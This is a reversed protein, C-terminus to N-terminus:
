KKRKKLVVILAVILGVVVVAAIIFAKMWKSQEGEETVDDDANKTQKNIVSIQSYAKGDKFEVTAVHDGPELMSLYLPSITVVTSGSEATYAEEPVVEDDVLVDKFQKFDHDVIITVDEESGVNYTTHLGGIISIAAANDIKAKCVDCAKDKNKDVHEAKDIIAGCSCVKWHHKSDYKWDGTAVHKVHYNAVKTTTKGNKNVAVCYYKEGDYKCDQEKGKDLENISLVTLKNTGIGKYYKSDEKKDLIYDKGTVVDIVHWEYKNANKAKFTIAQSKGNEVTIDKPQKLIVPAKDKHKGGHSYKAVALKVDGSSLCNGAAKKRVYYNGPKLGSIVSGSISHYNSAENARYEMASSVGLIKGDNNAKTQCNVARLGSPAAQRSVLIHQKNQDDNIYAVLIEGESINNLVVKGDNCNKWSSGSDTSYKMNSNVRGLVGSANGTATFLANPADRHNPSVPIIFNGAGEKSVPDDLYDMKEKNLYVNTDSTVYGNEDSIELKLTYKKSGDFLDKESLTKSASLMWSIKDIEVGNAKSKFTKNAESVQQGAAPHVYELEVKETVASGEKQEDAMTTITFLLAICLSLALIIKNTKKM